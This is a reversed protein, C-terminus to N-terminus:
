QPGRVLGVIFGAIAATALGRMGAGSLPGGRLAPRPALVLATGPPRGAKAAQRAALLLGATALLFPGAVVLPAGVPGVRPLAFMWLAVLLCNVTAIGTLAACAGFVVTMAYRHVTRKTHEIGAIRILAGLSTLLLQKM